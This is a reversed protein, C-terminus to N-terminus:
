NQWVAYGRSRLVNALLAEAVEAEAHTSFALEGSFHM